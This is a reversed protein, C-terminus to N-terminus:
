CLYKIRLKLEGLSIIHDETLIQSGKVPEDDIMTGNTSNKDTIVFEKDRIEITCHVGSMTEERIVIDNSGRRGINTKKNFIQYSNVPMEKSDLEILWGVLMNRNAAGMFVTRESDDADAAKQEPVIPPHHLTTSTETDRGFRTKLEDQKQCVPCHALSDPYRHGKPCQKM